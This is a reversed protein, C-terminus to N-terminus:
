LGNMRQLNWRTSESLVCSYENMLLFKKDRKQKHYLNLQWIDSAVLRFVMWVKFLEGQPSQYLVHIDNFFLVQTGKTYTIFIWRDFIVALKNLSWEYKFIECPLNQFFMHISKMFLVNTDRKHKHYLNLLWIDSDVFRFVMWVKFLEGQPNQYLVHIDNLFLVQIGKTITIFIWSDFIVTLLDLSWEYKSSKVKHIKIFCMFIMLSYFRHRRQTHSLSEDTLSWQCFLLNSM